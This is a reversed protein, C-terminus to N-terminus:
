SGTRVTLNLVCKALAAFAIVALTAKYASM